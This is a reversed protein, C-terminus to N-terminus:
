LMLECSNFPLDLAALIDKQTRTPPNLLRAGSVADASVILLDRLWQMAGAGGFM